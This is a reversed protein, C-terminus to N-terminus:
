RARLAAPMAGVRDKVNKQLDKLEAPAKPRVTVVTGNKVDKTSVVTQYMVVPCRGAAGGGEGEGNHKGDAAPAAKSVDELHKARERIADVAAKSVATITLEVGEKTNKLKTKAGDVANPCHIMKNHGKSTDPEAPATPSAPTNRQAPAAKGPGPGPAPTQAQALLPM